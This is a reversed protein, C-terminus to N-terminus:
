DFDLLNHVESISNINTNIDSKFTCLQQTLFDITMIKTQVDKQLKAIIFRQNKVLENLKENEVYFNAKNTNLGELWKKHNKTKIHNSFVTHSEYIKDKRAGCPCFLGKKITHFSPIKDVYNGDNDICPTYLDPETVLEM